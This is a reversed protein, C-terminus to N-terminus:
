ELPCGRLAPCATNANPMQTITPTTTRRLNSQLSTRKFLNSLIGVYKKTINKMPNIISSISSDIMDSSADLNFMSGSSNRLSASLPQMITKLSSRLVRIFRKPPRDYGLSFKRSSKNTQAVAPAILAERSESSDPFDELSIGKLDAYYARKYFENTIRRVCEKLKMLPQYLPHGEEIESGMAIDINKELDYLDHGFGTKAILMNPTICIVEKVLRDEKGSVFKVAVHKYGPRKDDYLNVLDDKWVEYRKKKFKELIGKFQKPNKIELTGRLIYTLEKKQEVGLFRHLFEQAFSIIDAVEGVDSRFDSHKIILTPM